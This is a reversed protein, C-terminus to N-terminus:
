EQTIHSLELREGLGNEGLLGEVKAREGQQLPRVQLRHFNNYM